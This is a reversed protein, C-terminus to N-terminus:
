VRGFLISSFPLYSSTFYSVPTFVGGVTGDELRM